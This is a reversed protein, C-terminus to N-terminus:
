WNVVGDPYRLDTPLNNWLGAASVYWLVSADSIVARSKGSSTRGGTVAEQIRDVVRIGDFDSEPM